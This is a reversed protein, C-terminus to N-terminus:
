VAREREQKLKTHREEEKKKINLWEGLRMEFVDNGIMSRLVTVYKDPVEPRQEIKFLQRKTRFCTLQHIRAYHTLAAIFDDATYGSKSRIHKFARGSLATYQYTKRDSKAEPQKM